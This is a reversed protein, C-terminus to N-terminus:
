FFVINRKGEKLDWTTSDNQIRSKLYVSQHLIAEQTSSENHSYNYIHKVLIYQERERYKYEESQALM